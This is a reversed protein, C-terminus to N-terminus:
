QEKDEIANIEIKVEQPEVRLRVGEFSGALVRLIYVGSESIGSCDVKLFNPPPEFREVAEQNEGELHINGTKIELEGSLGEMIGIIAIPVNFINRVPIIQSVSGAFETTGSGRIL